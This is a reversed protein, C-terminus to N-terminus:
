FADWWSPVAGVARLYARLILLFAILLIMWVLPRLGTRANEDISKLYEIDDLDVDHYSEENRGHAKQYDLRAIIALAKTLDAERVQLGISGGGLPLATSSLSHTVFNRIGADTLFASYLRAESETSFNKVTLIRIDEDYGDFLNVAGGEM